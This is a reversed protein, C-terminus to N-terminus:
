SHFVNNVLFDYKGVHMCKQPLIVSMNFIWSLKDSMRDPLKSFDTVCRTAFMHISLAVKVKSRCVEIDIPKWREGGPMHTGLNM